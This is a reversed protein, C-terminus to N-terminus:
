VQIALILLAGLEHLGETISDPVGNVYVPISLNSSCFTISEWVQFVVKIEKNSMIIKKKQIPKLTNWIM